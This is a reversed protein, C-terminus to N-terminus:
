LFLEELFRETTRMEINSSYHDNRLTRVLQTAKLSYKDSFYLLNRDPTDDSSKCEIIHDIRENKVLAFDTEQGEKTRLYHLRWQEGLYDNRGWIDKLLSVAVLNELRAGKEDTAMASDYFYIKPEKLLSRAINHSFPTVRFVLFLGELLQIYKAITTPSTGVDRAISSFSVPSGVRQRLLEVTLQLARFDFIRQYDLIDYRTLGDIYQSRWRAADTDNDAIFPEPFGGRQMLREFQHSFETNKLEAPCVPLLRHRFYRGALSEGSHSIIDMRASGTVLIRLGEKRTDYTGKLWTQWDPMKHIEDLILLETDAYWGENRIIKRDAFNDYNLYVTKNFRKGIEKALWTKGVQRPGALLVMKKELDKLIYEKQSREM